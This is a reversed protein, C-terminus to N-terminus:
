SPNEELGCGQHWVQVELLLTRLSAQPSPLSSFLAERGKRVPCIQNLFFFVLFLSSFLYEYHNM